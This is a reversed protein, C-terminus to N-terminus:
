LSLKLIWHVLIEQKMTVGYNSLLALSYLPLLLWGVCSEFLVLNTGRYPLRIILSSSFIDVPEDSTIVM